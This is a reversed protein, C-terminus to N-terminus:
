RSVQSNLLDCNSIWGRLHFGGAAMRECAEHYTSLLLDSDNNTVFLNDVYLNNCLVYNCYDDPYTKLHYKIVHNLIFPSSALGFVITRYRYAIYENNSNKWLIGFRNKDFDDSLKINLFAQKIDSVMLYKDARAKLLLEFLNNMLNIGPYAAENLSPSNGIKLSCNLVIRLKTSVNEEKKVVPRHPIWTMSEVDISNLPVEELIGDSLQQQFVAEYDNLLNESVLKSHVRDLVAKSIHFNSRVEGIKENWPLKVSYNGDNNLKINSSFEEVKKRDFDTVPESIGLSEINFIQDLKDDLQCDATISAIPDFGTKVPELVFNTILRKEYNSVKCKNNYKCELQKSTLFNDVNGFPALGSNLKYAVGGLCNVIECPMFQLSDVGLLGDLKVSDYKCHESLRHYKSINQHVQKLGNVTMNLNFDHTVLFPLTRRIGDGLDVSSNIESFESAGTHMFSTITLKRSIFNCNQGLKDYVKSSLYSRQSGSDLLCKVTTNKYGNYIKINVIPLIFSNGVNANANICLNINVPNKCLATIHDNSKCINCQFDLQKCNKVIHQQSSCKLCLGLFKCREIRDGYSPYKKCQLMSHGSCQCFKCYKNVTKFNLNSVSEPETTKVFSSNSFNVQRSSKFSPNPNNVFSVSTKMNLVRIVESYNDFIDKVYPYNSGVNRVLEQKFSSPLKSFVLHSILRMASNTKLLDIEYIKLDNLLCRVESIYMKTGLFEGDHKCKLSLLKKFLDDVIAEKDLFEVTLLDIAINFNTDNIHLHQILKLAYGRLYSKLYTLKTSDSLDSRLGVINNFQTLFGHFETPSVNEGTFIDCKLDPLQLKCNTSQASKNVTHVTKLDLSALFNEVEVHYQTQSDIENNLEETLGESDVAESLGDLIIQDFKKIEELCHLISEKCCAINVTEDSAIQKVYLTIKRKYIGRQVTPKTSM